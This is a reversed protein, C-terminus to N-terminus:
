GKVNKLDKRKSFFFDNFCEQIIPILETEDKLNDFEGQLFIHALKYLVERDTIFHTLATADVESKYELLLKIELDNDIENFLENRKIELRKIEALTEENKEKENLQMIATLVNTIKKGYKKNYLSIDVGFEKYFDNKVKQLQLKLPQMKHLIELSNFDKQKLTIEGSQLIYEKM